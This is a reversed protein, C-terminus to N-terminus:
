RQKFFFLSSGFLLFAGGMSALALTQSMSATNPLKGGGTAPTQGQGGGITVITGTAASLIDSYTSSDAVNSDTTSGATFDFKINATGSGKATFEITAFTGSGSYTKSTDAIGSIRVVGQANDVTQANEPYDKYITGPTVKNATLKDKDFLIVARAGDTSAGDTDLRVSVTFTQGAAATVTAPTLSLSAGAAYATLPAISLFLLLSTISISGFIIQKTKSSHAAM